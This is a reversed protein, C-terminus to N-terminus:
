VTEGQIDIHVVIVLSILPTTVVSTCFASLLHIFVSDYYSPCALSTREFKVPHKRRETREISSLYDYSIFDVHYNCYFVVLRLRDFYMIVPQNIQLTHRDALTAM